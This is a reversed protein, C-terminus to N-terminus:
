HLTAQQRLENQKTMHEVMRMEVYESFSMDRPFEDRWLKLYIYGPRGVSFLLLRANCTPCSLNFRPRIATASQVPVGVLPQKCYKCDITFDRGYNKPVLGGDPNLDTRKETVENCIPCHFQKLVGMDVMLITHVGCRYCKPNDLDELIM